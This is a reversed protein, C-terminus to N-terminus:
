AANRVTEVSAARRATCSLKQNKGGSYASIKRAKVSVIFHREKWSLLLVDNGLYLVLSHPRAYIIFFLYGIYCHM